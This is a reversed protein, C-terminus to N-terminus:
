FGFSEYKIGSGHDGERVGCGMIRRFLFRKGDCGGEGEKEEDEGLGKENRESKGNFKSMVYGMVMKRRKM